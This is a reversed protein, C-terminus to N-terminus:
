RCSQFQETHMQNEPCWVVSGDGNYQFHTIFGGDGFHILLLVAMAAVAPAVFLGMLRWYSRFPNLKRTQRKQGNM